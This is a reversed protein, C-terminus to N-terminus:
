YFNLGVTFVLSNKKYNTTASYATLNPDNVQYPTFYESNTNHVFAVDIFYMKDRYGVGFSVTKGKFDKNYPISGTAWPSGYFSYGGRFRYMGYAFEGGLRLNSTNTYLQKIILNTELFEDGGQAGRMKARSYNVTELDASIFGYKGFLWALSFTTRGPTTVNYEYNNPLDMSESYSTKSRGPTGPDFTASLSYEYEEKIKYRVPTRYSIGFRVFKAPILIFGLNGGVGSGKDTMNFNYGLSKFDKITDNALNTEKFELNYNHRLSPLSLGLGFYLVNSFNAGGSFSYDTIGGKGDTIATQKVNTNPSFISSIYKYQDASNPDILYTNWAMYDITGQNDVGGIDNQNIGDAHEALYDTFSSGKNIGSFINRRSFGAMRNVNFALSYNLIGEKEKAEGAPTKTTLVLGFNPINFNFRSDSYETPSIYKSVSNTNNFNFSFTLENKSYRALGAPNVYCATPDAGLAGVAGGLGYAKASGGFGDFGNLSYRLADSENQAQVNFFSILIGATFVCKKLFIM